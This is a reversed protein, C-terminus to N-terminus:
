DLWEVTEMEWMWKLHDFFTNDSENSFFRSGDFHDSPPGQYYSCGQVFIMLLIAIQNILVARLTKMSKHKWFTEYSDTM